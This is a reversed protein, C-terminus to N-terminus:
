SSHRCCQRRGLNLLPRVTKMFIDVKVMFSINVNGKNGKTRKGFDVMVQGMLNTKYLKTTIYITLQWYQIANAYALQPVLIDVAQINPNKRHLAKAIKGCVFSINM